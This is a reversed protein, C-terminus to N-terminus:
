VGAVGMHGERCGEIAEPTGQCHVNVFKSSTDQKGLATTHSDAWTDSTHAEASALSRFM